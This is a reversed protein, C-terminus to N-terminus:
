ISPRQPCRCPSRTDRLTRPVAPVGLFSPHGPRRPRVRHRTEPRTSGADPGAIALQTAADKPHPTPTQNAVKDVLTCPAQQTAGGGGGGGIAKQWRATATTEIAFCLHAALKGFRVWKQRGGQVTEVVEGKEVGKPVAGVSTPRRSGRGGKRGMVGRRSGRGPGGRM